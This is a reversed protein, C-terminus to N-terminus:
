QHPVGGRSTAFFWSWILSLRPDDPVNSWSPLAAVGVAIRHEGKGFGLQRLLYSRQFPLVEGGFDNADFCAGSQSLVDTLRGIRSPEFGNTPLRLFGSISPM